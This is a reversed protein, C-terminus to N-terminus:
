VRQLLAAYAGDTKSDPPFLQRDRVLRWGKHDQLWSRILGSNEEEELSCTSYVLRGEPRVHAAASDLLLRQTRNLMDLKRSDFRWRADPRRRLVGTNSCPVDLLIGDFDGPIEDSNVANAQVLEVGPLDCRKMNEKLLDVRDEYRDMAMLGQGGGMRMALAITKGGPAACADLIREGPQPDLLEPALGTAPDQVYFLGEEYGPVKEVPIGRPLVLFHRPNFEHPLVEIGAEKLRLTYANLGTKLRNVHLTVDPRENDYQCLRVTKGQGFRLNWRQVLRDPHSTRIAGDQGDLEKKLRGAEEAANRLSANILAAGREGGTLRGLDAFENVVAYDPTDEMFLLEYLGCLLVANLAGAPSQPMLQARYWELSRHHRVCGYLMELVFAAPRNQELERDPFRRTTLWDNLEQAARARPHNPWDIRQAPPM